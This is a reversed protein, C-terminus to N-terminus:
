GHSAVSNRRSPVATNVLTECARDTRLIVARFPGVFSELAQMALVLRNVAGLVTINASEALRPTFSVAENKLAVRLAVRRMMGLTTRAM